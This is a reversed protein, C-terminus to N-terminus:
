AVYFMILCYFWEWVQPSGKFGTVRGTGRETERMCVSASSKMLILHYTYYRVRDM